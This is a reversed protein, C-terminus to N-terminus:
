QGARIDALQAEPDGYISRSLFLDQFVFTGGTKLVRLGEKILDRQEQLRVVEHFTLNSIPWISRGTTSHLSSASAKQFTVRTSFAQLRRTRRLM